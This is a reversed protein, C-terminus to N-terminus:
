RFVGIVAEGLEVAKIAVLNIPGPGNDRVPARLPNDRVPNPAVATQRELLCAFALWVAVWKWDDSSTGIM